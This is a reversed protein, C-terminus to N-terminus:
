KDSLHKISSIVITEQGDKKEVKGTAEVKHGMHEKMLEQGKADNVVAYEKGNEALIKGEQVKGVITLTKAEGQAMVGGVMALAFVFAVTIAVLSLATKRM